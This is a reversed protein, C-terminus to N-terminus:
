SVWYFSNFHKANKFSGSYITWYTFSKIFMIWPNKEYECNKSKHIYDETFLILVFNVVNCYIMGTSYFFCSCFWTPPSLYNNLGQQSPFPTTAVFDPLSLTYVDGRQLLYCQLQQYSAGEDHLLLPPDTRNVSQHVTFLFIM